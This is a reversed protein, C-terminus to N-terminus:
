VKDAKLVFKKSLQKPIIKFDCPTGCFLGWKNKQLNDDEQNGLIFIATM